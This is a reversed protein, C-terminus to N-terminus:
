LTGTYTGWAQVFVYGALLGMFVRFILSVTKEPLKPLFRTSIQVGLLGGLGLCIGQLFLVNGALAHSTCAFIATIVIVGLSTQVAAKINEALLIIQLPVLIVGGGLGFLGAILGAAGGTAVTAVSFNLKPKRSSPDNSTSSQAKAALSKRLTILYINTLLLLGFGLLLYYPPVQSALRVGIHATVMSPIGIYLVKRLDLNGMRWNQISGSTATMVIALSSTAVAQVPLYGLTVILPVLITGGGIGLIGAIIGSLFGGGGLLLLNALDM